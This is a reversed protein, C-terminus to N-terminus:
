EQHYGYSCFREKKLFIENNDFTDRSPAEGWPASLATEAESRSCTREALGLCIAMPSLLFFYLLVSMHQLTINMQVDFRDLSVFSLANHRTHCVLGGAADTVRASTFPVIIPILFTFQALGVKQQGFGLSGVNRFILLEPGVKFRMVLASIRHWCPCGAQGQRHFQRRVPVM